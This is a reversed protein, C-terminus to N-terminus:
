RGPRFYWNVQLGTNNVLFDRGRNGLVFVREVNGTQATPLGFRYLYQNDLKDKGGCLHSLIDRVHTKGGPTFLRYAVDIVTMYRYFHITKLIEEDRSTLM